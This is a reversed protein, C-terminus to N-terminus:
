FHVGVFSNETVRHILENERKTHSFQCALNISLAMGTVYIVFAGVLVAIM